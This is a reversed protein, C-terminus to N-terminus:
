NGLRGEVVAQRYSEVIATVAAPIEDSLQEIAERTFPEDLDWGEALKLVFDANNKSAETWVEELSIKPAESKKASKKAQKEQAEADARMKDLMEDQLAGFERRTRYKYVMGISGESGDVLTFTVTRQFTAPRQGLKIKAM